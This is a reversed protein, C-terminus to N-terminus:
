MKRRLLKVQHAYSYLDNMASKGPFYVGGLESDDYHMLATRPELTLVYVTWYGYPWRAVAGHEALHLCTRSAYTNGVELPADGLPASFPVVQDDEFKMASLPLAWEIFGDREAGHQNQDIVGRVHAPLTTLIEQNAARDRDRYPPEELDLPLQAM